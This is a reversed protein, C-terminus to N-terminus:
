PEAAGASQSGRRNVLSELDDILAQGDARRDVGFDIAVWGDVPRLLLAAGLRDSVELFAAGDSLGAVSASCSQAVSPLQPTQPTADKDHPSPSAPPKEADRIVPATWRKGAQRAPQPIRTLPAHEHGLNVTPAVSEIERSEAM